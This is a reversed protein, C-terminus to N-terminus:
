RNSKYKLTIRTISNKRTNKKKCEHYKGDVIDCDSLTKFDINGLPLGLMANITEQDIHLCESEVRISFIEEDFKNM